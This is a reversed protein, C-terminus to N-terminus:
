QIVRSHFIPPLLPNRGLIGGGGGSETYDVYVNFLADYSADTGPWTTPPSTYDSTGNAMCSDPTVAVLDESLGCEFGNCVVGIWYNTSASISGSMAGLDVLGGGAPVAAGASSAILDGPAGSNDARLTVKASAGATTAASFYAYGRNLTGGTTSTFYAVLERGDSCPFAASGQTTDGLTAM